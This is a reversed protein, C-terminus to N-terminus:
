IRFNVNYKNNIIFSTFGNIEIAYTKYVICVHIKGITVEKIM